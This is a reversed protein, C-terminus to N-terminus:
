FAITCLYVRLHLLVGGIHRLTCTLPSTRTQTSTSLDLKSTSYTSVRALRRIRLALAIPLSCSRFYSNQMTVIVETELIGTAVVALGIRSTWVHGFLAFCTKNSANIEPWQGIWLRVPLRLASTNSLYLRRRTLLLSSM